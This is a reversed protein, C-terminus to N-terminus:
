ILISDVIRRRKGQFYEQDIMEFFLGPDDKSKDWCAQIIEQTVGVLATPDFGDEEADWSNFWERRVHYKKFIKHLLKELSSGGAITGLCYMELPCGTQISGLRSDLNGSRSLGIKLYSINDDEAKILYVLSDM